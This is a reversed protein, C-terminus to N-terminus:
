AVGRLLAAFAAIALSPAFKAFQRAMFLTSDENDINATREHRAANCTSYIAYILVARKALDEHNARTALVADVGFDSHSHEGHFLRRWVKCRIIHSSRDYYHGCFPCTALAKGTRAATPWADPGLLVCAAAVCPPANPSVWKINRLWITVGRTATLGNICLQERPCRM